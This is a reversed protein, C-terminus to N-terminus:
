YQGNREAFYAEWVRTRQDQTMNSLKLAKRLAIKRGVNKDFQDPPVCESVGEARVWEGSVWRLNSRRGAMRPSIDDASIVCYTKQRPEERDYSFEVHHNIGDVEVSFM